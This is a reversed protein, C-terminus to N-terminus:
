STTWSVGKLAPVVMSRDHGPSGSFISTATAIPSLPRASVRARYAVPRPTTSTAVAASLRVRKMVVVRAVANMRSPTPTSNSGSTVGSTRRSVPSHRFRAAREPTGIAM